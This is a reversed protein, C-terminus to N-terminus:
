LKKEENESKISETLSMYINKLKQDELLGIHELITEIAGRAAPGTQIDQPSFLKIKKKKM